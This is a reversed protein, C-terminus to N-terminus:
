KRVKRFQEVQAEWQKELERVKEEYALELEEQSAKKDVGLAEYQDVEPRINDVRNKLDKELKQTYLRSHGLPKLNALVIDVLQVTFEKKKGEDLDKIIEVVMKKVGEKNNSKLVRPSGTLKEAGLQFLNSLQEDAINDWYNEQIKDYAESLFSMYVDEQPPKLFSLRDQKLRFFYGSASGLGFLLGGLLIVGIILIRQQKLLKRMGILIVCISTLELRTKISFLPATNYNILNFCALFEEFPRMIDLPFSPFSLSGIQSAVPV